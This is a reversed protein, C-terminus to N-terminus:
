ITDNTRFNDRSELKKFFLALDSSLKCGYFKSQYIESNRFRPAIEVLIADIGYKKHYFLNTTDGKYMDSEKPLGNSGSSFISYKYFESVEFFLKDFGNPSTEGDNTGLIIDFEMGEIPQKGFGHMDFLVVKKHYMMLKEITNCISIHYADYFPKIKPDFYAVEPVFRNYDVFRRPLLGAVINTQYGNLIDMVVHMIRGDEGTVIKEGSIYNLDPNESKIRPKFFNELWSGYNSSIGGHPVTIIVPSNVNEVTLVFDKETM